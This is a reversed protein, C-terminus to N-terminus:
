VQICHIRPPAFRSHSRARDEGTLMQFVAMFATVFSDFNARPVACNDWPACDGRTPFYFKGGFLAMGLLSYIM